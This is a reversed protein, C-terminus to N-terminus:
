RWRWLADQADAVIATVIMGGYLLALACVLDTDPSTM